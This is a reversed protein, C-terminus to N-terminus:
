FTMITLPERIPCTAVAVAWDFDKERVWFVKDPSIYIRADPCIKNAFDYYREKVYVGADTFEILNLNDINRFQIYGKYPIYNDINFHITDLFKDTLLKRIKFRKLKKMQDPFDDGRVQVYVDGWSDRTKILKDFDFIKKYAVKM